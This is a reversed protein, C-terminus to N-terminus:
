RIGAALYLLRFVGDREREKREVSMAAEAALDPDVGQRSFVLKERPGSNRELADLSWGSVAVIRDADVMRAFENKRREAVAKASLATAIRGAPILRELSASMAAPM